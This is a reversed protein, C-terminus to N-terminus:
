TTTRGGRRLALGAGILAVAIVVAIWLPLGTFPLSSGGAAMTAALIGSMSQISGKASATGTKATSHPVSAPDAPPV